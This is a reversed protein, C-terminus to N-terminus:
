LINIYRTLNKKMREAASVAQAVFQWGDSEEAQWAAAVSTAACAIAGHGLKDFAYSCNKANSNPYDFGDLLLFLKPYKVRLSRLSDASSAAAMVAIRSYGCRSMFAEAFRNVIDARAMHVLRSGTLLDQLEPASRNATRIVVFFDKDNKRMLDIYPRMGDSGIYSTCTLADFCVEAGTGFLKDAAMTALQSSLAEPADLFVYFGKERALKLVQDMACLGESGFLSFYSISFRVAPVLSELGIMLEDCFRIYAMLFSGESEVLFPPVQQPLVSFDVVAPNKMKRIKEQLKDISM